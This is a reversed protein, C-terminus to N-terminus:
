SIEVTRGIITLGTGMLMTGDRDTILTTGVCACDALILTTAACVVILDACGTMLTVGGCCDAPILTTGTDVVMLGGCGIMLTTRGCACGTTLTTGDCVMLGACDTIIRETGTATSTREASGIAGAGVGNILGTGM